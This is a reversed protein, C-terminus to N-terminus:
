VVKIYHVHIKVLERNNFTNTLLSRYKIVAHMKTFILRCRNLINTLDKGNKGRTIKNIQRCKESSYQQDIFSLFHFYSKNNYSHQTSHINQVSKNLCCLSFLKSSLNWHVNKTWVTILYAKTYIGIIWGMKKQVTFSLIKVM